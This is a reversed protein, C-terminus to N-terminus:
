RERSQWRGIIEPLRAVRQRLTTCEPLALLFLEGYRKSLVRKDLVVVIGEDTKRRILRGFGQRFMLVSEPVQYEIFANDFTESRAAVVPDSPVAFPLRVVMVATLADGPVDVGEWFSRTGLLVSGTDAQMFQATLQQRSAGDTQALIRIGEEHLAPYIADRTERLQKFSTFLVLTRGGLAKVTDVIADEVYRQYGPQNPEPIDSCLYLLTNKKYDFPSGVALTNVQSASLRAKIFDFNAERQRGQPATRLTASTMVVSNLNEWIHEEVLPGVYLPAAHLSIRDKWVDIWTIFDPDPKEIILNLNNRVKEMEKATDHIASTLEDIDDIASGDESLHILTTNLNNLKEVITNLLINLNQWSERVLQFDASDRVRDVLRVAQSFDSHANIHSSTFFALVDFLETLRMDASRADTRISQAFQNMEDRVDDPLERTNKNLDNLVGGSDQTLEELLGDLFRKDAEFSLGNTVADELHHAEDIVLEQYEPLIHNQNAVDSLLLAHNVIVLHAVEALRRAHHTPCTTSDCNQRNCNPNEGSLKRWAAKEAPSRLSIEARDGTQSGPLWVLIRAMLAMEHRDRPGSHRLRNFAHSCLYNGRGKRVAVRLDLNLATQVLPIDKNILQDQLNITNTSIVVRRENQTAWFAAPLLYALSKGTGTGAEVMLHESKNFATAVAAIMEIQQQRPEFGPFARSFNSGEQLLGAVMEIDIPEPEKDEDFPPLAQAQIKEPSYLQSQPASSEGKEFATRTRETMIEEFFITEPWGLNKGAAVIEAITALPLQLAAEQLKVFLNLTHRADAEARHATSKPLDLANVLYELNYRGLRPMIISALTVTDIIHNGYAMSEAQLFGVDFSVNHGVIINEAIIANLKPRIATIRKAKAVMKDDIGTLQTIFDPIPRGPDLLAAVCDVEQGDQWAVAAVEIMVDRRNDLGTTEVDVFVYRRTM